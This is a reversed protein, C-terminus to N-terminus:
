ASEEVLAPGTPQEKKTALGTGFDVNWTGDNPLGMAEVTQVALANLTRQWEAQAYASATLAIQPIPKQEVM